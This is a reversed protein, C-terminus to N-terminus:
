RSSLRTGSRHLTAAHVIRGSVPRVLAAVAVVAVVRNRDFFAAIVPLIVLSPMAQLADALRQFILDITGLVYDSPLGALIALAIGLVTPGISLGLSLRGAYLLRSLVDRGLEDTGLLHSQSPAELKAGVSPDDCGYPAIM